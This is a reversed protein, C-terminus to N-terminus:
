RQLEPHRRLEQQEQREQLVQREPQEWPEQRMLNVKRVHISFPEKPPGEKKM